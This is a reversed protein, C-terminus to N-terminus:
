LFRMYDSSDDVEVTEQDCLNLCKISSTLHKLDTEKYQNHHVRPLQPNYVNQTMRRDDLLDAVKAELEPVTGIPKLAKVRENLLGCYENVEKEYTAVLAKADTTAAIEAKLEAAKATLATILKLRNVQVKMGGGRLSKGFGRVYPDLFDLSPSGWIRHNIQDAFFM